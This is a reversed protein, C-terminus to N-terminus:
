ADRNLDNVLAVLEPWPRNTQRQLWSRLAARAVAETEDDEAPQERM